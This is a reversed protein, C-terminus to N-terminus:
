EKGSGQLIIEDVLIKASKMKVEGKEWLDYKLRGVVMVPDGKKLFKEAVEALGEWAEIEHWETAEKKEGSDKATYKESTALSFHVVKKQNVERSKVEQGLHGLLTVQNYNRATSM